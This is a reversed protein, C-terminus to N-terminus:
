RMVAQKTRERNYRREAGSYEVRMLTLGHAPATGRVEARPAPRLLSAVSAADIEGRGVRVLVAVVRRVMRYLFANAAIRIYVATGERWVELAFVERQTGDQPGATFADFDHTGVLQAAACRMQAIDLPQAIHWARSRDLVPRVPRQEIWYEYIRATADRRPDFEKTATTLQRIAVDSPLHANVARLLTADDLQTGIRCAIVQGLAHVGSDTRGAGAVTVKAGAAALIASELEGQVTRAGRQRQFGHFGAGDYEVTARVTRAESM